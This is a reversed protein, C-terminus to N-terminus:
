QVGAREGGVAGGVAPAAVRLILEPAAHGWAVGRDGTRDEGGHLEVGDGGPAGVAARQAVPHRVAPPQVGVSLDTVAPCHRPRSRVAPPAWLQPSVVSLRAYQQPFFSAPWAPSLEM